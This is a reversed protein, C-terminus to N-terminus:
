PLLGNKEQFFQFHEFFRKIKSAQVMAAVRSISELTCLVIGPYRKLFSKVWYEAPLGNIFQLTHSSKCFKRADSAAKILDDKTKRDGLVFLWEVLQEEEFETLVNEPDTKKFGERNQQKKLNWSITRNPIDYNQLFCM